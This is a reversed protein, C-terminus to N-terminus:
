AVRLWEIAYHPGQLVIRPNQKAWARPNEREGKRSQLSWSSMRALISEKDVAFALERQNRADVCADCCHSAVFKSVCRCICEVLLVLLLCLLGYAVNAHSQLWGAFLLGCVACFTLVAQGVLAFRERRAEDKKHM